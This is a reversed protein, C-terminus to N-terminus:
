FLSLATRQHNVEYRCIDRLPEFTRCHHTFRMPYNYPQPHFPMDNCAFDGGIDRFTSSITLEVKTIALEPWEANRASLCWSCRQAMLCFPAHPLYIGLTPFTRLAEPM